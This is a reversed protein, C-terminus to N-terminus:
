RQAEPAWATTRGAVTIHAIREGKWTKAESKKRWRHHFLWTRPYRKDDANVEVARRIVARLRKRLERAEEITLECARRLPSIGSQYLVEDAIWNGVGAAFRQDLLVAKIPANRKMLLAHLVNARPLDLLPDFGLDAIPPEREPDALLRIRGLRRADAMVFERDGTTTIHIKTYKPPWRGNPRDERPGSQLQLAKADPTRFAGTMGFHFVPWPRADLEFWIYKGRRKVAEVRRKTLRRAVREPEVGTYVIRDEVCVVSAITADLLV